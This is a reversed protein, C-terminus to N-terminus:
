RRARGPLARYGIGIAARQQDIQGTVARAVFRMAGIGDLEEGAGDFGHHAVGCDLAGNQDAVAQAAGDGVGEQALKGSFASASTSTSAKTERWM